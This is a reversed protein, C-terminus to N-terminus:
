ANAVYRVMCWLLHESGAGENCGPHYFGVTHAHRRRRVALVVILVFVISLMM